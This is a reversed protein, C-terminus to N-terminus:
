RAAPASFASAPVMPRLAHLEVRMSGAAFYALVGSPTVCATQPSVGSATVAVCDVLGGGIVRSGRGTRSAPQSVVGALRAAVDEPTAFRGGFATTIAKSSAPSVTDSGPASDCKVPDGTCVTSEDPSLLYTIGLGRYAHRPPAQSVTVANGDLLAYEATYTSDAGASLKDVIAQVDQRAQDGAHTPPGSAATSSSRVASPSCASGAFGAFGTVVSVSLIVAVIIRRRDLREFRAPVLLVVSL